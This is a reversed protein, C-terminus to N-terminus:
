NTKLKKQRSRAVTPRLDGDRVLQRQDTVRPLQKHQVPEEGAELLAAVPDEDVCLHRLYHLTM